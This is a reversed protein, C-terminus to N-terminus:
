GLTVEVAVDPNPNPYYAALEHAGYRARFDEVIRAVTGPDTIARAISSYKADGSALRIAPTKLLNKYWQSDSGAGPLLYLRQGQRVFWVPHSNQKGTIRGTTTLEIEDADELAAEFDDASMTTRRELGGSWSLPETV